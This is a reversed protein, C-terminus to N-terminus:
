AKVTVSPLISMASERYVLKNQHTQLLLEQETDQVVHARLSMEQIELTAVTRAVKALEELGEKELKLTKVLEVLLSNMDNAKHYFRAITAEIEEMTDKAMSINAHLSESDARAGEVMPLATCDAQLLGACRGVAEADEEWEGLLRLQPGLQAVLKTQQRVRQVLVRKVAVVKRLERVRVWVNFLKAESFSRGARAAATARANVFRWQLLRSFLLRLHHAAEERQSPAKKQRFFGLVGRGGSKKKVRDGSDPAEAPAPSRGPSLAWASLGVAPSVPTPAGWGGSRPRRQKGVADAGGAPRQARGLVAVLSARNEKADRQKPLHLPPADRSKTTSRSRTASAARRGAADANPSTLPNPDSSSTLHLLRSAGSRSRPLLLAPSTTTPHGRNGM